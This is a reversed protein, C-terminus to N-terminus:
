VSTKTALMAAVTMEDTNPHIEGENQSIGNRRVQEAIAPRGDAPAPPPAGRDFGDRRIAPGKM